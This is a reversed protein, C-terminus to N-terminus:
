DDEGRLIHQLLDAAKGQLDAVTGGNDVLIEFPFDLLENESSHSDVVTVDPKHIRVTHVTVDSCIIGHGAEYDHGQKYYQALGHHEISFRWDTIVVIDTHCFWKDITKIAQRVWVDEGFLPKMGETGLRQLLERYTQARYSGGDVDGNAMDLGHLISLGSNKYDELVGLDMDLTSALLQKLPQAFAVLKVRPDHKKMAQAFSDKGSRAYGSLLILHKM